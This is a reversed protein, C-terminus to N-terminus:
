EFFQELSFIIEIAKQTSKKILFSFIVESSHLVFSQKFYGNKCTPRTVLRWFQFLLWFYFMWKHLNSRSIIKKAVWSQLSTVRGAHLIIEFPKKNQMGQFNYKWKQDLLWPLFCYFYFSYKEDGQSDWPDCKPDNRKHKVYRGYIGTCVPSENPPKLMHGLRNQHHPYGCFKCCLPINNKVLFAAYRRSYGLTKWKCNLYILDQLWYFDFEFSLHHVVSVLIMCPIYLCPNYLIMVSSDDSSTFQAFVTM